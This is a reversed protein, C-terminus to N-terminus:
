NRCRVTETARAAPSSQDLAFFAHEAVIIHTAMRDCVAVSDRQLFASCLRDLGEAAIQQTATDKLTALRVTQVHDAFRAITSALRTNRVSALWAARFDIMSLILKESNEGEVAATAERAAATIAARGAQDMDRAALAAARPELLKRVEFSDRVEELTLTPVAFGRSTGVLYGDNVLQLLAERAPMRSTGFNTAIDVDVLRDAPGIECRQLRRRLHLYIRERANRPPAIPVIDALSIRSM